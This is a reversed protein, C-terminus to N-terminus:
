FWSPAQVPPGKRRHGLPAPHCPNRDTFDLIRRRAEDRDGETDITLTPVNRDSLVEKAFEIAPQMLDVMHSRNEHATEKIKERERNRHKITETDAELFVAGISVPVLRFFDYLESVPLGMDEFRWGFGLGRQIFGTQVYAHCKGEWPKNAYVNAMKMLSRKNMRRAAEFTPHDRAILLLRTIENIFDHWEEPLVIDYIPLEHPGWIPDCLTSKGVGPPGCIDLWNM